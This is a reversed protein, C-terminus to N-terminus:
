DERVQDAQLSELNALVNSDHLHLVEMGECDEGAGDACIVSVRGHARLLQAMERWRRSGTLEATGFHYTIIIFHANNM